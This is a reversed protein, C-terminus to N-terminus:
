HKHFVIRKPEGFNIGQLYYVTSVFFIFYVMYIDYIDKKKKEESM